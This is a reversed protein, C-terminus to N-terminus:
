GERGAKWYGTFVIRAKPVGAAVLHRRGEAALSQEGAIYAQVTLPNDPTHARLAHLARSGISRTAPEPHLARPLWRVEFGAPANLEQEDAPTPIEILALGTADVPLDRLIGAIAPLASEDGGLVIHGADDILDFGRGQDILAIKEGPLARQAWPGAIGQDGHAVFDVDIEGLAPRHSRLTYSRVPPRTGSKSTLYKIYGGIGFQEPVAGFDTDGDARPLFLRFWQDFGRQPLRTIDDGAFTIRVMHPTVRESRVVEATYLGTVRRGDTFGM